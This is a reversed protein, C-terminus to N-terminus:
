RHQGGGAGDGGYRVGAGRSNVDIPQWFWTNSPETGLEAPEGPQPTKWEGFMMAVATYNCTTVATIRGTETKSQTSLTFRNGNITLTAEGLLGDDPYNVNGTYTGSLDTLEQRDPDCRRSVAASRNTNTAGPKQTRTSARTDTNANQNTNTNRHRATRRPRAKASTTRNTQSTVNASNSNQTGSSSGGGRNRTGRATVILGLSVLSIVVMGSFPVVLHKANKHGM